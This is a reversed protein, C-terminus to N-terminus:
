LWLYRLGARVGYRLLRELRQWDEGEIRVSADLSFGGGHEWEGMAPADERELLNLRSLARLLRTRVRAQIEALAEPGLARSKTAASEQLWSGRL